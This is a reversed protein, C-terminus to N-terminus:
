STATTSASFLGNNWGFIIFLCRELRRRREIWAPGIRRVTWPMDRAHVLLRCDGHYSRGGLWPHLLTRGMVRLIGEHGHRGVPASVEVGSVARGADASVVWQDCRGDGGCGCGSSIGVGLGERGGARARARARARAGAGGSEGGVGGGISRRGRKTKAADTSWIFVHM